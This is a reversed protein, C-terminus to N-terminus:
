RSSRTRAEALLNSVREDEPRMAVARELYATAAQPRRLKLLGSGTYSLLDFDDPYQELGKQWTFVAEDIGLLEESLVGLQAFGSAHPNLELSRWHNRIARRPNPTKALRNALQLRLVASDRGYFAARDLISEATAFESRQL